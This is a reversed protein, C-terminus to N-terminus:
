GKSQLIELGYRPAVELLRARDEPTSDIHASYIDPLSRPTESCFDELASPSVVAIVGKKRDRRRMGLTPHSHIGVALSRRPPRATMAQDDSALQM